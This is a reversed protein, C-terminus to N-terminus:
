RAPSFYAHTAPATHSSSGNQMEGPFGVQLAFRILEPFSQAMTKRMINARRLEVTRLGVDLKTAIAKNPVGDLVMSLVNREDASLQAFRQLLEAQLLRKEHWVRALELAKIAYAEWAHTSLPLELCTSAGGEMAKVAVPLTISRSVFIVPVRGLRKRLVHQFELGTMGPLNQETVVFFPIQQPFRHLFTEADVYTEV